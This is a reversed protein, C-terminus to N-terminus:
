VFFMVRKQILLFVLSYLFSILTSIDRNYLLKIVIIFATALHYFCFYKNVVPLQTTTTYSLIINALNGPFIGFLLVSEISVVYKWKILFFLTAQILSAYFSYNVISARSRYDKQTLEM